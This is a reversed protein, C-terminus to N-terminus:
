SQPKTLANFLLKEWQDYIKEPAYQKVMENGAKGMKVRLERDDMLTKLKEAFDEATNDTLFGNVGDVILENVSPTTKLGVCPLGVSMAETLARGWGEHFNSPFAFIDADRLVGLAQNTTGMLEVQGTLDFSVIMRQLKRLYRRKHPPGYIKVQWDPYDKALRAFAEILLHQQKGSHLRSIMTITKQTKEVTLDALDKEEIQAVDNPIAHISGHYINANQIEKAFSHQLVHLHPCANIKEIKESTDVGKVFSEGSTRLSVFCM